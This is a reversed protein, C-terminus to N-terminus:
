CSVTLELLAFVLTTGAVILGADGLDVNGVGGLQEELLKERHVDGGAHKRGARSEADTVLRGTLM